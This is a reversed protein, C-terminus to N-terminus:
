SLPVFSSAASAAPMHAANRVADSNPQTDEMGRVPRLDVNLKWRIGEGKVFFFSHCDKVIQVADRLVNM